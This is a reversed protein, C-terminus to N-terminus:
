DRGTTIRRPLRFVVAGVAAVYGLTAVIAGWTPGPMLRMLVIGDFVV